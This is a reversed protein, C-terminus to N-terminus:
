VIITVNAWQFLLIHSGEKTNWETTTKGRPFLGMMEKRHQFGSPKMEQLCLSGRCLFSDNSLAAESM